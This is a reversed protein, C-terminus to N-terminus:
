KERQKKKREKEKEKKEEKKLSPKMQMCAKTNGSAINDITHEHNFQVKINYAAHWAMKATITITKLFRHLHNDMIKSLQQQKIPHTSM